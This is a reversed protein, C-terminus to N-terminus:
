GASGARRLTAVDRYLKGNSTRPLSSLVQMVKPVKYRSMRERCWRILDDGGVDPSKTSVYAEIGSGQVVVAENIAAHQRLVAEIEGLDVKLGGIMVMSDARGFLRVAGRADIEARDQTSFWGDSFRGPLDAGAVPLYPSRSLGVELVGDKGVRVDVGPAPLGIGPRYRGTVDMAIVGTETTGYSNGIAVGFRAAFRDATEPPLMEGGSVASTLSTSVPEQGSAALLEFHFPVGFVSTVAHRDITRLLEGVQLRGAFAVAAGVRLAHLLGGILGFSHATSSLLLIRDGPGPMSEVAAFSSLEAQLSTATRGIVKPRGTSGSSFQILCHDTGRERGAARRVVSVEVREEFAALTRRSPASRVLWQPRCVDLLQATETETLRHDLLMVQAGLQWLALVVSLRTFSPAVAVAVTSDASLGHAALIEAQQDIDRAMDARTVETQHLLYPLDGPGSRLLDAVLVDSQVKTEGETM